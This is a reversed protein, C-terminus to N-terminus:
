GTKNCLESRSMVAEEVESGILSFTANKWDILDPVKAKFFDDV